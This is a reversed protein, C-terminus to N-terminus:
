IHEVDTGPSRAVWSLDILGESLTIPAHKKFERIEIIVLAAASSIHFHIVVGGLWDLLVLLGNGELWSPTIQAGPPYYPNFHYEISGDVISFGINYPFWQTCSHM